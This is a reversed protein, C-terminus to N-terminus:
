LSSEGDFERRPPSLKAALTIKGVLALALPRNFRACYSRSSLIDVLLVGSSLTELRVFCAESIKYAADDESFASKLLSDEPISEEEKAEETVDDGVSVAFVVGLKPAKGERGSAM